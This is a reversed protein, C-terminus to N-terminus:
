TKVQEENLKADVFMLGRGKRGEGKGTNTEKRAVSNLLRISNIRAEETDEKGEELVLSNLVKKKPCDRLLHPGDCLYCKLERRTATEPAKGKKFRHEQQLDEMELHQYQLLNIEEM